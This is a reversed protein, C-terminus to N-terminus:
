RSRKDRQVYKNVTLDFSDENHHILVEIPIFFIPLDKIIPYLREDRLRMSDKETTIIIKKPSLIEDFENIIRLLDAMTFEHHDGFESCLVQKSNKELYFKLSSTQAIGTVLLVKNDQLSFNDVNLLFDKAGDTFPQAELYKIYSYYVKQYPFPKIIDTIRRAEIPSFVPPAKTVVIIDARNRGRRWERLYGSPMMYQREGIDSYRILLINLGPVVSRHQFADDLLIIETEPLVDLIKNIGMVRKEDVAVSIKPFKNSFQLPEDGIDQFTSTNNALHFGKTKRKYGRSLTVVRFSDQLLRVLYEIQPTKGTGGVTINGVSIVPLDFGTSKLLGTDYLKNRLFTVVGYLFSIPLLLLRVIIMSAFIAIIARKVM